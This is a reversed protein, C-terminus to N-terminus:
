GDMPYLYCSRKVSAQSPLVSLLTQSSFSAINPCMVLARAPHPVSQPTLLLLFQLFKRQQTYECREVLFRLIMIEKTDESPHKPSHLQYSETAAETCKIAGSNRYPFLFKDIITQNNSGASLAARASGGPSYEM